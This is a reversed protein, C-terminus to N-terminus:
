NQLNIICPLKCIKINVRGLKLTHGRDLDYYLLFDTPDPDWDVDFCSRDVIDIKGSVIQIMILGLCDAFM